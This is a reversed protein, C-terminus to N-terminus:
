ALKDLLDLVVRASIAAARSEFHDYTEASNEDAEDSICRIVLCPKGAAAATHAVAASEMDCAIASTAAVIAAKKENSDIFDDGTAIAGEEVKVGTPVAERALQRLSDDTPFSALYPFTNRLIKNPFDHYHLDTALVLSLTGLGGKLSGAIGTNLLVEVDFHDILIQAFSGANVKGIGSVGMYLSHGSRSSIYIKRGFVVEVSTDMSEALIDDIEVQMAAIIGIRM